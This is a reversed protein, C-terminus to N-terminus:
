TRVRVVSTGIECDHYRRTEGRAIRSLKNKAIRVMLMMDSPSVGQLMSVHQPYLDSLHVHFPIPTLACLARLRLYCSRVTRIGCYLIMVCILAGHMHKCASSRAAEVYPVQKDGDRM